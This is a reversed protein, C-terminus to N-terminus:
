IVNEAKSVLFYIRINSCKCILVRNCWRNLINCNVSSVEASFGNKIETKNESDKSQNKGKFSICFLNM